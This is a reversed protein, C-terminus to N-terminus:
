FEKRTLIIIISTFSIKAITFYTLCNYIFSKIRLESMHDKDYVSWMM